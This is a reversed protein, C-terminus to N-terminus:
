RQSRREDLYQKATLLKAWQQKIKIEQDKVWAVGEDMMEQKLKTLKYERNLVEEKKMIVNRRREEFIQLNKMREEIKDLLSTVRKKKSKSVLKDREVSARAEDLIKALDTLEQNQLRLYRDKKELQQELKDVEERDKRISESEQYLYKIDDNVKRIRNKNIELEKDTQERLKTVEKGYSKMQIDVFGKVDKEANAKVTRLDNIQKTLKDKFKEMQGIEAKVTGARSEIGALYDENM